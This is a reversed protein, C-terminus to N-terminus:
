KLKDIERGTIELSHSSSSRVNDRRRTIMMFVPIDLDRELKSEVLFGV